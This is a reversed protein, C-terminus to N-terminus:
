RPAGAATTFASSHLQTIGGDLELTYMAVSLSHRHNGRPVYAAQWIGDFRRTIANLAQVVNGGAFKVSVPVDILGEYDPDDLRRGNGSLRLDTHEHFLPPLSSQFLTHLAHHPHEDAVTFATVPANLISGTPTWATVPRIVAVGDVETWRYDPRQSLLRDIAQRPTLGGLNLSGEFPRLVWPAPSCDLTQEFGIRVQAQRALQELATWLRCPSRGTLDDVLVTVGMPQDLGSPPRVAQGSLTLGACVALILHRM